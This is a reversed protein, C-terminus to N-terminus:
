SVWGSDEQQPAEERCGYISRNWLRFSRDCDKRGPHRVTMQISIPGVTVHQREEDAKLNVLQIRHEILLNM